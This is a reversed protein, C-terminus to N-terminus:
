QGVVLYPITTTKNSSAAPTTVQLNFTGNVPATCGTAGKVQLLHFTGGAANTNGVTGPSVTATAAKPDPKPCSGGPPSFGPDTCPTEMKFSSDNLSVNTLTLTTGLPMPNGYRDFLRIDFSATCALNMNLIHVSPDTFPTDGSLVITISRRVDAAGWVGDCTNARSTANNLKGNAPLATCAKNNAANYQISQEGLEWTKNENNDIFVDGLDDWTEGPDWVDNGNADVFSEEGLAYATVTVRNATALGSPESDGRPRNEASILTVSCAGQVTSCTSQTTGGATQGRIQAGEAIFNITTGDAVINGM